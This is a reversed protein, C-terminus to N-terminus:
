KKIYFSQAVPQATQLEPQGSRGYQWAVITIKVPFKAKPPIPTFQLRNGTVIAPGELVYYSVPAQLSSVANLLLFGGQKYRDAIPPFNIQQLAGKTNVAPVILQAQQVAPKYIDDGPHTAAFTFTYNRPNPPLGKELALQFTSDNIKRFPGAVRNITIPVAGQAHGIPSGAPLGTWESTRPHAGPVTDLFVGKVHFSTGDALPIFVLDVQLHTNKQPLVRGQQEYGLLEAKMNRYSSEYKVTERVTEEDFFWFAQATDGTYKGVPAPLATPEQNLRWKDMLWGSRSPDINLLRPAGEAPYHEPLRYQAAKRIYFALYRIKKETAAFHGEAPCALMSLPMLPHAQREKLGEASWTNAAEYEGMTELSPIFDITRDGWIDPSFQPSRVYPWQGSVSICALTRAPNWAAFYYPWSAAASHGIGVIPAFRLGDYGSTEALTDMMGNFITGAGENFRFLHDFSPSVWIEAFGLKSMEARFLPSELISLEEMNNQAVIVARIRKCDEPVWLFARAGANRADAVPASWQWVQAHSPLTMLVFLLAVCFYIFRKM